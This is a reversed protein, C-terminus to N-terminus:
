RAGPPAVVADKLGIEDFARRVLGSAKEMAATLPRVTIDAIGGPPFPVVLTIPRNPFPDEAQAPSLAAPALGFTAVITRPM